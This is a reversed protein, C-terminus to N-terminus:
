HYENIEEKLKKAAQRPNDSFIIGRSSNILFDGDLAAKVTKELDAGQAGIGPILLPMSGVIKRIKKLEEPYTAGTVLGCNNNSNWNKSVNEAVKEFLQHYDQFEGAGPNSTRCLIFFFKDALDLFPQLAQRGLYPHLTLSDAGLYDFAFKIYGQNTSDIDARKADLIIPIALSNIYDCTKKLSEIGSIGQAEYFASNPKYACVLDATQDIIKKNFDYDAQDLGICLLSNNKQSINKFKSLFDM